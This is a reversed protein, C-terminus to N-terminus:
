PRRQPHLHELTVHHQETLQQAILSRHCAEPDREVCLLAATGCSPLASVVPTLDARDLIETTDRAADVAEAAVAAAQSAGQSIETISASMEEAGASTASAYRSARRGSAAAVGLM